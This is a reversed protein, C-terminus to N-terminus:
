ITLENDEKLEVASQMVNKLVRLLMGVFGAAVFIFFFPIYFLGGIFTIVSVAICCWSVVRLYTVNKKIFTKNDKINFSLKILSYLAGGAFIASPYFCLAFIRKLAWLSISNAGFGRYGVMYKEFIFPGLVILLALLVSLFICVAISLIVSKKSNWM